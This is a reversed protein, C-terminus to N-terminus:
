HCPYGHRSAQAQCTRRCCIVPDGCGCCSADRGSRLAQMFSSGQQHAISLGQSAVLSALAATLYLPFHGNQLVISAIVIFAGSVIFSLDFPLVRTGGYFAPRGMLLPSGMAGLFLNMAIGDFVIQHRLIARAMRNHPAFRDVLDISVNFVIATVLLGPLLVLGISRPPQSLMVFLWWVSGGAIIVYRLLIFIRTINREAPKVTHM